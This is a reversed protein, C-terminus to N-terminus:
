EMGEWERGIDPLPNLTDETIYGGEENAEFDDSPRDEPILYIPEITERYLPEAPPMYRENWTQKQRNKLWFIAATVNPQCKKRTTVSAVQGDVIRETTETLEYGQASKFLSEAIAGDATLKGRQLADMFLPHEHKWHDITTRCVEFFDALQEDTAGLLCLKYAQEAFAGDYPTPRGKKNDNEM